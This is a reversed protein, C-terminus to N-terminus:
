EIKLKIHKNQLDNNTRKNKKKQGNYQKDKQKRIRIVGKTDEFEEYTIEGTQFFVQVLLFIEFLVKLLVFPFSTPLVDSLTSNEDERCCFSLYVMDNMITNPLRGENDAEYGTFLLSGEGFGLVFVSTIKKLYQRFLELNWDFFRLLLCLRYGQCM